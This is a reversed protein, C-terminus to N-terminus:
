FRTILAGTIKDLINRVKTGEKENEKLLGLFCNVVEAAQDQGMTNRHNKQNTSSSIIM